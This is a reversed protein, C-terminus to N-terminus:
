APVQKFGYFFMRELPAANPKERRYWDRAEDLSKFGCRKAHVESYDAFYIRKVETIVITAFADAAPTLFAPKGNKGAVAAVVDGVKLPQVKWRTTGTKTGNLVTPVHESKFTLRKM